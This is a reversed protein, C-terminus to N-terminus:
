EAQEQIPKGGAVDPDMKLDGNTILQLQYQRYPPIKKWRWISPQKLGMAAALKTQNGFYAMAEDKTMCLYYGM